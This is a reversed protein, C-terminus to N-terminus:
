PERIPPYNIRDKYEGFLPQNSRIEHRPTLALPFTLEELDLRASHTSETSEPRWAEFLVSTKNGLEMIEVWPKEIFGSGLSGTGKEM